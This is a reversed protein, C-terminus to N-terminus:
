ESRAALFRLQLEVVLREDPDDLNIGFVEGIRRIRYRFTNPHVNVRQSATAIDGFADLYARLTPVWATGKEADQAALESVQGALLDPRDRAIETLHHLVAHSSVDDIHAVSRAPQRRLVDVVVDAERRSAPVDSLDTVISGVGARLAVRLAERARDVISEALSGLDAADGSHPVLAYVRAGLAVCAARRRYSECYVAVLDAVRQLRAVADADDDGDDAEFAIVAVGGAPLQLVDRVRAGHGRGELLAHLADSRRQREVDSASRRRLLHLAAIDAAGRLAREAEGPFPQRGEIVWISGLVEGGARVAIALRNLYDPEDFEDIRIVDDSQWLRKFVGADRLRQIWTSPVQRGLITEQRPIDIPHDLSSYALVHSQPDEITTAGGVMAAVANALSFLDGLPVDAIDNGTPDAASAASLLFTYLQGWSLAAPAGLLAVGTEDSASQLAPSPAGDLKVVAATAGDDGLRRLLAVRDRDGVVGVALVVADHPGATQDAGDFIVADSVPVDLGKPTCLVSLVAPHLREVLEGLTRRETTTHM